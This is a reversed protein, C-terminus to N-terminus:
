EIGLVEMDARKAAVQELPVNFHEALEADTRTPAIAAFPENPILIWRACFHALVEDYPEADPERQMERAVLAVAAVFRRVPHDDELARVPSLFHVRDAGAVAALRGGYGILTPAPTQTREIRTRM